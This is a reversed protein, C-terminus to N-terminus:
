CKFENGHLDFPRSSSKHGTGAAGSSGRKRGEATFHVWAAAQRGFSDGGSVAKSSRRAEAVWCVIDTGSYLRSPSSVIRRCGTMNGSWSSRGLEDGSPGPVELVPSSVLRDVLEPTTAVSDIHANRLASDLPLSRGYDHLM